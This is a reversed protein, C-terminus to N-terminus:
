RCTTPGIHRAMGESRFTVSLVWAPCDQCHSTGMSPWTMSWRICIIWAPRRITVPRCKFFATHPM